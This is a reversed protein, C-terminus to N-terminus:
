MCLFYFEVVWHGFYLFFIWLKWTSTNSMDCNMVLHRTSSHWRPLWNEWFVRLKTRTKRWSRTGRNAMFSIWSCRVGPLDCIIAFPDCIASFISLLNFIIRENTSDILVTLGVEWETWGDSLWFVLSTSLENPFQFAECLLEAFFMFVAYFLVTKALSQWFGHQLRCLGWTTWSLSNTNLTRVLHSSSVFKVLDDSGTSLNVWIGQVLKPSLVMYQGLPYFRRQKTKLKAVCFRVPFIPIWTDEKNLGGYNVKLLLTESQGSLGVLAVLTPDLREPNEAVHRSTNIFFQNGLTGEADKKAVVQLCFLSSFGHWHWDGWKSALFHPRSTPLHMAVMCVAQGWCIETSFNTAEVTWLNRGASDAIMSSIWPDEAKYGFAALFQEAERYCRLLTSHLSVCIALQHHFFFGKFFIRRFPKM